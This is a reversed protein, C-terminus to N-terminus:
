LAGSGSAADAHHFTSDASKLNCHGSIAAKKPAVTSAIYMFGAKKADVRMESILTAAAMTIM